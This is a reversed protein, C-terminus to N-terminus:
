PFFNLGHQHDQYLSFGVLSSVWKSITSAVYRDVNYSFDMNEGGNPIHNLRQYDILSARAGMYIYDDDLIGQQRAQLMFLPEVADEQTSLM